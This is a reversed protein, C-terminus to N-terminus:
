EDRRTFILQLNRMAIVVPSQIAFECQGQIVRQSPLDLIFPEFLIGSSDCSSYGPGMLFPTGNAIIRFLSQDYPIVSTEGKFVREWAIPRVHYRGETLASVCEATPSPAWRCWESDKCIYPQTHNLRLATGVSFEEENADNAGHAGVSHLLACCILIFWQMQVITRLNQTHFYKFKFKFIKCRSWGALISLDTRFRSSVNATGDPLADVPRFVHELEKHNKRLCACRRSKKLVEVKTHSKLMEEQKHSKRLCACRRSKECM